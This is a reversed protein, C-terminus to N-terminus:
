GHLSKICCSFWCKCFILTYLHYLTFHPKLRDVAELKGQLLQMSNNVYLSLKWKQKWKLQTTQTYHYSESESESSYGPHVQGAHTGDWWCVQRWVQGIHGYIYNIVQDYIYNEDHSTCVQGHTYNIVQGCARFKTNKYTPSKWNKCIEKSSPYKPYAARGYSLYKPYAARDYSLQPLDWRMCHICYVLSDAQLVILIIWPKNKWKYKGLEYIHISNSEHLHHFSKCGNCHCQCHPYFTGKISQLTGQSCYTAFNDITLPWHDGSLNSSLPSVWCHSSWVPWLM